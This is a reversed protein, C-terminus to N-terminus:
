QHAKSVGSQKRRRMDRVLADITFPWIPIISLLGLWENTADGDIYAINLGILWLTSAAFLGSRWWPSFLFKLREAISM